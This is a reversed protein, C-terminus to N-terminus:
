LVFNYGYIYQFRNKIGEIERFSNFISYKQDREFLTVISPNLQFSNEKMRILTNEMYDDNGFLLRIKGNIKNIKIEKLM